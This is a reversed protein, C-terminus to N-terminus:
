PWGGEGSSPGDDMMRRGDLTGAAYWCRVLTGVGFRTWSKTERAWVKGTGRGGAWAGDRDRGAESRGQGPKGPRSKTDARPTSAWDDIGARERAGGSRRAQSRAVVPEATKKPCTVDAEPQSVM